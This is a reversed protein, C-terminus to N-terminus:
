GVIGLWVLFQGVGIAWLGVTFFGVTAAILLALVAGAVDAAGETGWCAVVCLVLVLAVFALLEM